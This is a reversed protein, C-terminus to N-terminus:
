RRTAQVGGKIDFVFGLVLAVSDGSFVQRGIPSNDKSTYEIKTFRFAIHIREMKYSDKLYYGFDVFSGLSDEFEIPQVSDLSSNDSALEPKRHYTLGGGLFINQSLNFHVLLNLPNREFEIKSGVDTEISTSQGGYTIQSYLHDSNHLRFGISFVEQEGANIEEIEDPNSYRYITDGGHHFGAEGVLGIGPEAICHFPLLITLLLWKNNDFRM